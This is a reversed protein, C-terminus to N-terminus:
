VRSNGIPDDIKPANVSEVGPQHTYRENIFQSYAHAAEDYSCGYREQLQGIMVERHADAAGDADHILKSFEEKIEGAYQHWIGKIENGISNKTM